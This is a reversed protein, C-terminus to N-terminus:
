FTFQYRIFYRYQQEPRLICCPQPWDIHNPSDPLFQPELAIGAYDPYSGGTRNPTGALWNGTYLQMAPKDTFLRMTVKDDPSVLQAVPENIDRLPAFFYSHDYGKAPIQDGDNLLHASITKADTFDFGTGVVSKLNAQPIGKADTPLFQPANITLKHELATLPLSVDASNNEEGMLNFYGHNTLNVPTAKDTIARYGIIVENDATLEYSVWVSLQGPFGQCGDPSILSFTVSRDTQQEIQWRRKDFGQEGGHLCNGAQNTSVQYSIGDISFQGRNIRNAYRGITAGMYSTHRQFDAMSNVGLLVERIQNSQLTLQCHLWTAGIDMLVIRMGNGNTLTVLKAPSGDYAAQTTISHLTM